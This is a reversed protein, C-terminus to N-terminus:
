QHIFPSGYDVDDRRSEGVHQGGCRVADDQATVLIRSRFRDIAHDM